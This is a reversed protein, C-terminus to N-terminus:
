GKQACRRSSGADLRLCRPFPYKGGDRAARLMQEMDQASRAGFFYDYVEGNVVVAAQPSGARGASATDLKAKLPKVIEPLFFAPPVSSKITKPVYSFTITKFVETQELKPLEQARWAVCPPCDNGGMWILHVNAPHGVAQAMLASPLALFLVLLRHVPNVRKSTM